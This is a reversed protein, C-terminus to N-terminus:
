TTYRFWFDAISELRDTFATIGSQESPDFEDFSAHVKAVVERILGGLSALYTVNVTGPQVPPLTSFQSAFELNANVVEGHRRLDEACWDLMDSVAGLVEDGLYPHISMFEVGVFNWHAHQVHARLVTLDCVLTQRINM